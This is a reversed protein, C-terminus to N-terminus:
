LGLEQTLAADYIAEQWHAASKIQASSLNEVGFFKTKKIEADKLNTKIFSNDGFYARELNARVFNTDAIIAGVFDVNSLNTEVFNAGTLDSGSLRANALNANSFDVNTLNANSLNAGSLDAGRFDADQLDANSLDAGNLDINRLDAESASLGKMSVQDENLDQLAQIRAYSTKLGHASDVVQWAEYQAQQTRDPTELLFLFLAVIMAFGDLSDLFISNELECFFWDKSSKIDEPSTDSFGRKHHHIPHLGCEQGEGAISTEVIFMALMLGFTLATATLIRSVGKQLNKLSAM